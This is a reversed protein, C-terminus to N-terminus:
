CFLIIKFQLALCITLVVFTSLLVGINQHFYNNRRFINIILQYYVIAEVSEVFNPESCDATSCAHSLFGVGFIKM